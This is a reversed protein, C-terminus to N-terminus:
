RTGQGQPPTSPTGAEKGTGAEAALADVLRRLGRPVAFYSPKAGAGTTVSAVQGASWASDLPLIAGALPGVRLHQERIVRAWLDSTLPEGRPAAIGREEWQARDLQTVMLGHGEPNELAAVDERLMQYDREEMIEALRHLAEPPVAVYSRTRTDTVEVVASGQYPGEAVAGEPTWEVTYGAQRTERLWDEVPIPDSVPLLGQEDEWQRDYLVLVCGEARPIVRGGQESGSRWGM